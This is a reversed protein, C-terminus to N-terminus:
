GKERERIAVFDEAVQRHLDRLSTFPKPKEESNPATGGAGPPKPLARVHQAERTKGVLGSPLVDKKAREIVTNLTETDGNAIAQTEKDTMEGAVMKQWASKSIPMLKADYQQEVYLEVGRAYNTFALNSGHEVAPIRASLDDLKTIADDFKTLKGELEDLGLFERWQQRVKSKDDAPAEKVKEAVQAKMTRIEETLSEITTRLDAERGQYKEREGLLASLPVTSSKEKTSDKGEEDLAEKPDLVLSDDAM